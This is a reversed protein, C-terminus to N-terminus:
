PKATPAPPAAAPAAANKAANAFDGAKMVVLKSPIIHRKMAERIQDPELALVKKELEADWELTRGLFM